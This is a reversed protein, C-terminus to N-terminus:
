GSLYGGFVNAIDNFVFPVISLLAVTGFAIGYTDTLYLFLWDTVFFWVTSTLGRAIFLGWFTPKGLVSTILAKKKAQIRDAQILEVEAKSVRPHEEPRFYYKMWYYLWVAGIVLVMGFPARWLWDPTMNAVAKETGEQVTEFSGGVAMAVVWVLLFIIPGALMSGVSVGGNFFGMAVGREKAPFWESIAKTAAPWNASEGLGLIFRFVMFAVIGSALGTAAGGITWLVVAWFFGWRAGFKDILPGAVFLGLVGGYKFANLVNAMDINTWNMETRIFPALVNFITRDVYNMVTAFFLILLIGYRMYGAKLGDFVKGTQMAM